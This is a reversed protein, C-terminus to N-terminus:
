ARYLRGLSGIVVFGGVLTVYGLTILTYLTLYQNLETEKSNTLAVDLLALTISGGITLVFLLGLRLVSRLKSRFQSSAASMTALMPFFIWLGIVVKWYEHPGVNPRHLGALGLLVAYATTVLMIDFIEYQVRPESPDDNSSEVASLGLHWNPIKVLHFLVSQTVAMGGFQTAYRLGDADINILKGWLYAFTGVIAAKIANRLIRHQVVSVVWVWGSATGYLAGAFFAAMIQGNITAQGSLYTLYVILTTVAVLLLLSTRNLIPNLLLVVSLPSVHRGM